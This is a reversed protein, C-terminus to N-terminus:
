QNSHKGLNCTSKFQQGNPITDWPNRESRQGSNKQIECIQNHAALLLPARVWHPAIHAYITSIMYRKVSKPHVILRSLSCLWKKEQYLIDSVNHIYKIADMNSKLSQATILSRQNPALSFYYSPKLAGRLPHSKMPFHKPFAKWWRSFRYIQIKNERIDYKLALIGSQCISDGIYKLSGRFSYTLQAIILPLLIM